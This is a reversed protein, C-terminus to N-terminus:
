IKFFSHFMYNHFNLSMNVRLASIIKRYELNFLIVLVLLLYPLVGEFFSIKRGLIIVKFEGSIKSIGVLAIILIYIIKVKVSM